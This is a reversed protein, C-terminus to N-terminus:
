RADERDLDTEPGPVEALVFGVADFQDQVTAFEGCGGLPHPGGCYPCTQPYTHAM